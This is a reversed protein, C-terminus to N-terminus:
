ISPYLPYYRNCTITQTNATSISQILYQKPETEKPLTINILQHSRLFYIPVCEITINDLIKDRLYLEYEARDKCLEDSPINAYEGDTLVIRIEGVNGKVYFPSKPNEDKVIAHYQGTSHEAGWVEIVNKVSEFDVNKTLRILVKNWIDDDVTIVENDGNPIKEYHFVGDDDFYMQYSPYLKKLENLIDYTTGGRSIRIEIPVESEKDDIDIIYREFGSKKLTDIIVERIKEKAKIIFDAGELNGNRMGTLKAMLDIGQFTLTDTSADFEYTPQNILYIGQNFWITEQTRLSDVGIFIQIYKDLFIQGGEQVNFDTGKVVMSISCTKRIDSNADEQIEPVSLAYGSIENVTAFNFNLLNIKIHINRQRQKAVNYMEQTIDM